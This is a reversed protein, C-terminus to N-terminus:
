FKPAPLPTLSASPSVSPYQRQLEDHLLKLNEVTIQYGAQRPDPVSGLGSIASFPIQNSMYQDVMNKAQQYRANSTRAVEQNLNIHQPEFMPISLAEYLKRETASKSGKFRSDALQMAAGIGAIEPVFSKALSAPNGQSGAVNIGYFQDYTTNPYLTNEGYVLSPNLYTFASTIVPNLSQIYGTLTAYNAVDRLPNMARFDLATVNGQADPHGLYFLFQWRLPLGQDNVMNNDYEAMNALMMARWPHDLPYSLIYSLIHKQWGYFPIVTRAAQRELPGMKRLDSMVHAAHQMGEWAMREKTMTVKEGTTEDIFYGKREAKAAGDLYAISRQLNTVYSTFRLNIQGAAKLYDIAKADKLSIGLTQEIHEQIVFRGQEKGSRYNFQESPNRFGYDPTGAQTQPAMLHEPLGEGTMLHRHAKGILSLAQPDSRLALLFTGGFVIHATYRPSLNLIAFRFLNTPKSLARVFKPQKGALTTLGRALDRPIYLEEPNGWRPLSFGFMSTPNWKDLGIKTALKELESTVLDEAAGKLDPRIDFLFRQLDAGTMVYGTMVHEMFEITAQRELRQMLAHNGSAMVDFRSRRIDWARKEAMDATPIGKGAIIHIGYNNGRMAEIQTESVHPVYQLVVKPDQRMSQVFDMASKEAARVIELDGEDFYVMADALTNHIAMQALQAIVYPNSRIDEITRPTGGHAEAFKRDVKAMAALSEEQAVLNKAMTDFKVDVYVDPPHNWVAKSFEKQAKMVRAAAKMTPGFSKKTVKVADNAEKESKKYESGGQRFSDAEKKYAADSERVAAKYRDALQNKRDTMEQVIPQEANRLTDDIQSMYERHQLILQDLEAREMKPSGVIMMEDHLYGAEARKIPDSPIKQGLERRAYEKRWMDSRRANWHRDRIETSRREFEIRQRDKERKAAERLKLIQESADREVYGAMERYSAQLKSKALVRLKEVQRVAEGMQERHHKIIGAKVERFIPDTDKAEVMMQSEIRRNVERIARTADHVNQVENKLTTLAARQEPSFSPDNIDVENVWWRGFRKAMIDAQAFAQDYNGDRINTVITDIMGGPATLRRINANKSMGVPRKSNLPIGQWTEGEGLTITRAALNAQELEASHNFLFDEAQGLQERAVNSKPAMEVWARFADHADAKAKLVNAHGKTSYVEDKGTKPNRVVHVDNALIGEETYFRHVDRFYIELAHQVRENSGSKVLEEITGQKQLIQNVEEREPDSLKNLAEASDRMVIGMERTGHNGYTELGFWAPALQKNTGFARSKWGDIVNGVTMNDTAHVDQPNVSLGIRRTPTNRLGRYALQGVTMGKDAEAATIGAKAGIKSGAALTGVAKSLPIVDLISAVPHQALAKFGAATDTGPKDPGLSLATPDAKLVTGIDAVGPIFSLVTNSAADAIKGATSQGALHHAGTFLGYTNKIPDVLGNHLPHIVIDGIGTAINRIDTQFNGVINWPNPNDQPVKQITSPDHAALIAREREANSMAHNNSQLRAADAKWIPYYTNYGVGQIQAWASMKQWNHNFSEIESYTPM